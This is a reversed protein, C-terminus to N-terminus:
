HAGLLAQLIGILRDVTVNLVVPTRVAEYTNPQELKKVLDVTGM